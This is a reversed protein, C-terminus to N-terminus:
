LAQLLTLPDMNPNLSLLWQEAEKFANKSFVFRNSLLFDSDPLTNQYAKLRIFPIPRMSPLLILDYGIWKDLNYVKKTICGIGKKEKDYWQEIFTTKGSGKKGTVITIM